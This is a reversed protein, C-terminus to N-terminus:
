PLRVAGGGWWASLIPQQQEVTLTQLRQRVAAGTRGRSRITCRLPCRKDRVRWITVGRPRRVMM